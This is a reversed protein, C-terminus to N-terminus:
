ATAQRRRGLSVISLMFASFFSQLGLVMLSFGLISWEVPPSGGGLFGSVLWGTWALGAVFLLVAAAAGRELTFLGSLSQGRVMRTFAGFFYVQFGVLTLLSGAMMSNVRPTYGINLGLLASAMLLVGLSFLAAGPYEFVRTPSYLLM